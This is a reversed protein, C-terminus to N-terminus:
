IGLEIKCEKAINAEITLLLDSIEKAKDIFYKIRRQEKGFMAALFDEPEVTSLDETHVHPHRFETLYKAVLSDKTIIQNLLNTINLGKDEAKKLIRNTTGVKNQAVKLSFVQNVLGAISERLGFISELFSSKLLLYTYDHVKSYSEKKEHLHNALSHVMASRHITHILFFYLDTFKFGGSIIIRPRYAKELENWFDPVIVKIGQIKIPRIDEMNLKM